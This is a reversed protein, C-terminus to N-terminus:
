REPRRPVPSQSPPPISLAALASVRVVSLLQAEATSRHQLM